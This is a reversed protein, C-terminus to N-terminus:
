IADAGHAIALRQLDLGRGEIREGCRVPKAAIEGGYEDDGRRAGHHEAQERRAGAFRQEEGDEANEGHEAHEHQEANGGAMDADARAHRRAIDDLGGEVGAFLRGEDGAGAAVHVVPVRRVIGHEAGDSLPGRAASSAANLPSGSAECAKKRRFRAASRPSTRRSSIRRLTVGCVGRRGVHSRTETRGNGDGTRRAADVDLAFDEHEPLDGVDRVLARAFCLLDTAQFRREGAEVAHRHAKERDGAVAGDGVDVGREFAPEPEAAAFHAGAARRDGIDRALVAGPEESSARSGSAPRRAM